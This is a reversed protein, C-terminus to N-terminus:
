SGAAAGRSPGQRQREETSTPALPVITVPAGDTVGSLGAIILDEGPQLGALVEANQADTIGLRLERQRARGDTVVYAFNIGGRNILATLPVLTVNARADGLFSVQAFMGDRLRGDANSAVLKTQFTRNRQDGSPSVVEVSADFTEGQYPSVKM